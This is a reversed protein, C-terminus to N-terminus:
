EQTEQNDLPEVPIEVPKAVAKPAPKLKPVKESPPNGGILDLVAKVDITGMNGVLQKSINIFQVIEDDSLMNDKCVNSLKGSLDEQYLSLNIKELEKIKANNSEIESQLQAIKEAHNSNHKKIREIDIAITKRTQRRKPPEQKAKSM